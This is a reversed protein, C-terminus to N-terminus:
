KVTGPGPALATLLADAVIRHGGANWHAGNTLADGRHAADAFAATTDVCQVGTSACVAGFVRAAQSVTEYESPNPYLVLLATGGAARIDSVFPEFIARTTAEDPVHRSFTDEVLHLLDFLQLRERAAVEDVGPVPVGQLVLDDGRVTFYPKYWSTFAGCRGLLLSNLGLVVVDPHFAAGEERFRLLMQDPGYGPVGFNMVEARPLERGLVAAYTDDDAAESGFAFSDGFVAVRM